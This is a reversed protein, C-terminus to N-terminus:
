LGLTTASVPTGGEELIQDYRQQYPACAEADDSIVKARAHDRHFRILGHRGDAIILSDSVSALHPPCEIIKLNHAHRALLEMLRPCNRRLHEADQVTIQLTRQPSAALFESLLALREPRELKLPSLDKDFIHLEKAALALITQVAADYEGWTTILKSPM